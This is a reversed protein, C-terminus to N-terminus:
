IFYSWLFGEVLLWGVSLPLTPWDGDTKESMRAMTPGMILTEVTRITMFLAATFIIYKM